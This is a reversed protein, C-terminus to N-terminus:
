DFTFRRSTILRHITWRLRQLAKLWRLIVVYYNLMVWLYLLSGNRSNDGFYVVSFAPQSEAFVIGVVM